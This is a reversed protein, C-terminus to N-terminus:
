IQLRQKSITDWLEFVKGFWAAKEAEMLSPNEQALASMAAYTLLPEVWLPAEDPIAEYVITLANTLPTRGDPAPILLFERPTFPQAGLGIEGPLANDSWVQPTGPDAVMWDPYELDLNARDTYGLTQQQFAVSLIRTTQEPMSYVYEGVTASLVLTQAFLTHTRSFETLSQTWQAQLGEDMRIEQAGYLLLDKITQLCAVRTM